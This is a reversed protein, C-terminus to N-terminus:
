VHGVGKPAVIFETPTHTVDFGAEEWATKRTWGNWKVRFGHEDDGALTLGALRSLRQMASSVANHRERELDLIRGDHGITVKVPKLIRPDIGSFDLYVKFRGGRALFVAANWVAKIRRLRALFRPEMIMRTKSEDTDRIVFKEAM